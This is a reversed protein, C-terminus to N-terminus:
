GCKLLVVQFVLILLDFISFIEQCARELDDAELRALEEQCQQLHQEVDGNGLRGSFRQLHLLDCRQQASMCFWSLRIPSLVGWIFSAQGNQREM